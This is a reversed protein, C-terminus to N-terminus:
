QMEPPLQNGFREMAARSLEEAKRLFHEYCSAYALYYKAGLLYAAGVTCLGYLVYSILYALGESFPLVVGCLELLFPLEAVLSCIIMLAYYRWMSLDLKFLEKKEGKTLSNSLVLAQMAGRKPDDIIFYDALVFRYNMHVNVVLIAIFMVIVTPLLMTLLSQVMSLTVTGGEMITLMAEMTSETVPIFLAMVFSVAYICAMIVLMMILVRLLLLRIVPGIRYFGRTLDEKEVSQGRVARISSYIIGPQWLVALVTCVLGIVTTVTQMISQAGLGALGEKVPFLLPLLLNLVQQLLSIGALVAVFVMAVKRFDPRSNELHEQARALIIKRDLREM